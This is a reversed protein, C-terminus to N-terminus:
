DLRIGANRIVAGLTSMEKKIAGALHEPTGGVAELGAGAFKERAGPLNISQVIAKNLAAVIAPPTGAPAFIAYLVEVDFGPLGSDAMTPVGPLLASPRASTVALARIRKSKLLPMASGAAPFMLQVEGSILATLAGAADKYPVLAVKVGAASNMMEAALHVASGIPSAAYNLEGPRSKALAILERVNKTPLSPHVVLVNPSSAAATIPAFDKQPDYPVNKQLLPLIWIANSYFLITYGDAPAKQVAMAPIIPSGGRNEVVVQQGTGVAVGQAILRAAYDAGGGAGTTFLYVPKVPFNQASAGGAVLNMLCLPISLTALRSPLM